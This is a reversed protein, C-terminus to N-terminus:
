EILLKGVYRLVMNVITMMNSMADSTSIKRIVPLKFRKVVKRWNERRGSGAELLWM